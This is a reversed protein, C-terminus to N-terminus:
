KSIKMPTILKKTDITQIIYWNHIDHSAVKNKVTLNCDM